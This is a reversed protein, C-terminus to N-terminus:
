ETDSGAEFASDIDSQSSSDKGVALEYAERLIDSSELFISVMIDDRIDNLDAVDTPVAEKKEELAARRDEEEQDRQAKTKPFAGLRKFRFISNDETEWQSKQLVQVATDAAVRLTNQPTLSLKAVAQLGSAPVDSNTILAPNHLVTAARMIGQGQDGGQRLLTKMRSFQIKGPTDSEPPPPRGLAQLMSAALVSAENTRKLKRLMMLRHYAMTLSDEPTWALVANYDLLQLAEESADQEEKRLLIDALCARTETHTNNGEFVARFQKEAKEQRQARVLPDGSAAAIDSNCKAMAFVVIPLAYGQTAIAELMSLAADSHGTKMLA